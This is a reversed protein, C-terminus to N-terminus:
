SMPPATSRRWRRGRSTARCPWMTEAGMVSAALVGCLGVAGDGVVVVSGGSRVGASVAAHWGTPMVDSLALLSPLLAEDPM